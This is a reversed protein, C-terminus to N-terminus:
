VAAKEHNIFALAIAGILGASAIILFNQTLPLNLMVIFGIILPALIAGLRGIIHASISPCKWKPSEL